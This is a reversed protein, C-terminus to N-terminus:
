GLVAFQGTEGSRETTQTEPLRGPMAWTGVQSGTEGGLRQASLQIWSIRKNKVSGGRVHRERRGIVVRGDKCLIGEVRSTLWSALLLEGFADVLPAEVFDLSRSCPVVWRAPRVQLSNSSGARTNPKMGTRRGAMLVIDIREQQPRTNKPPEPNRKEFRIPYVRQAIANQVFEAVMAKYTRAATITGLPVVEEAVENEVEGGGRTKIRFELLWPEEL